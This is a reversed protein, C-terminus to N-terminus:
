GGPATLWHRTFILPKNSRATVSVTFQSVANPLSRIIVALRHVALAIVTCPIIRVHYLNDAECCYLAPRRSSSSLHVPVVRAVSAHSRTSAYCCAEVHVSFQYNNHATVLTKKQNTPVMTIFETGIGAPIGPIGREAAWFPVFCAADRVPRQEPGEPWNRANRVADQTGGM